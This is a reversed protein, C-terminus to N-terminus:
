ILEERKELINTTPTLIQNEKFQYKIPDATVSQADLESKSYGLATWGNDRLDARDWSQLGEVGDYGTIGLYVRDMTWIALYNLKGLFEENKYEKTVWSDYGKKPRGLNHLVVRDLLDDLEWGKIWEDIPIQRPQNTADKIYWDLKIHAAVLVGETDKQSKRSAWDFFEGLTVDM